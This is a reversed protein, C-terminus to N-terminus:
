DNNKLIKIINEEDLLSIEHENINYPTIEEEDQFANGCNTNIIRIPSNGIQAPDDEQNNELKKNKLFNNLYYEVSNINPRKM